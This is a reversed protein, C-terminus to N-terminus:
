SSSIRCKQLSSLLRQEITDLTDEPASPPGPSKDLTTLFTFAKWLRINKSSSTEPLCPSTPCKVSPPSPLPSHIEKKTPRVDQVVVVKQEKRNRLKSTISFAIMATISMPPTNKLAKEDKKVPTTPTTEKKKKENGRSFNESRKGEGYDRKSVLSKKFERYKSHLSSSSSSVSSRKQDIDSEEFHESESEVSSSIVGRRFGESSQSNTRMFSAQLSRVVPAPTACNQPGRIRTFARSRGSAESTSRSSENSSLSIPSLSENEKIPAIHHKMFGIEKLLRVHERQLEESSGASPLANAKKELEEVQLLLQQQTKPVRGDSSSTEEPVLVSSLDLPAPRHLKRVRRPPKGPCMSTNRHLIGRHKTAKEKRRKFHM